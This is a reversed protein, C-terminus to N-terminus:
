HIPNHICIRNIRCGDNIFRNIKACSQRTRCEGDAYKRCFNLANDTLYVFAMVVRGVVNSSGDKRCYCDAYAVCVKGLDLLAPLFAGDQIYCQNSSRSRVFTMRETKRHLRKKIIVVSLILFKFLSKGLIILQHAHAALFTRFATSLLKRLLRDAFAEQNRIYRGFPQAENM